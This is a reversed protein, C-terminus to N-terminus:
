KNKSFLGEKIMQTIVSMKIMAMAMFVNDSNLILEVFNAITSIFKKEQANLIKDVSIITDFIRIEM